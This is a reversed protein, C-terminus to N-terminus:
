LNNHLTWKGLNFLFNSLPYEHLPAMNIWILSNIIKIKKLDYNNEYVFKNYQELQNVLYFNCKMDIEISNKNINKINFLKNEINEHNFFINHRLKALDYYIDGRELDGGFNERWDILVFKNDKYLINDLIFDGHFNTPKTDSLYKYDINKLLDYIPIIDENNIIKYDFIIKKKFGLKVRNFTKEKYFKFCINKFGTNNKIEKWLYKKAWNLLEYIINKKKIKSLPKSDILEMSYFNDTYDNIKPILNKLKEARILREKNKNIDYFYKIVKDKLFCISENYKLLIDYKCKFFKNAKQYTIISGIDFYNEILKYKFKINNNMMIQYVNMDSLENNNPNALYIKKLIDFFISYEKIYSVGIYIYDFIKAGKNYINNIYNEEISVTSYRYSDKECNTVFMTNENLSIDINENIIADCCTYIFPENIYNKCQLLSYGLSSGKKNYNDINIYNFKINPYSLKLYQKILNSFHGLTVYFTVKEKDKYLDIIYNIVYKSGIRILSKNTYKTLEGLRSGIGSTTILVIM